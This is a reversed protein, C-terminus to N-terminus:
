VGLGLRLLGRMGIALGYIIFVMKIFDTLEKNEKAEKKFGNDLLYIVVGLVLLKWPYFSLSNGGFLNFIANPIVHQEFYNYYTLSVHTVSADFMNALIMFLNFQNKLPKWFRGLAIFPLCSITTYFVVPWFADPNISGALTLFIIVQTILLATSIGTYVYEYRWKKWDETKKALIILPLFLILVPLYLGPTTTWFGYPYVGAATLAHWVAILLIFPTSAKLLRMDVKYGLKKLFKFLVYTGIVLLVGYVITNVINYGSKDLIPNIFYEQFFNPVNVTENTIPLTM